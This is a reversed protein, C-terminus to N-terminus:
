LKMGFRAPIMLHNENDDGQEWDCGVQHLCIDILRSNIVNSIWGASFGTEESLEAVTVNSHHRVGGV